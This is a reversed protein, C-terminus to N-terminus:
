TIGSMRLDRRRVECLSHLRRNSSLHKYNEAMRITDCSPYRKVGLSWDYVVDRGEMSDWSMVGM